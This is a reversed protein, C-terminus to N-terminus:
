NFLKDNQIFRLPIFFGYNVDFISEESRESHCHLM